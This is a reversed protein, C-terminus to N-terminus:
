REDDFTPHLGSCPPSDTTIPTAGSIAFVFCAIRRCARHNAQSM